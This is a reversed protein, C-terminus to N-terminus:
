IIGMRLKRKLIVCQSIIFITTVKGNNSLYKVWELTSWQSLLATTLIISLLLVLSLNKTHIYLMQKNVAYQSMSNLIECILPLSLVIASM